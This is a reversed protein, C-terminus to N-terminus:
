KNPTSAPCGRSACFAALAEDVEKRARRKARGRKYNVVASQIRGVGDMMLEGVSPLGFTPDFPNEDLQQPVFLRERVEVHFTTLDGPPAPVRLIPPQEKLAARIREMSVPLQTDDAQAHIPTQLVLTAGVSLLLAGFLRQMISSAFNM